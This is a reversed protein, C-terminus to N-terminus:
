RFFIEPSVGFRDRIGLIARKSFDRRGSLMESLNSQGIGIEKALSSITLASAQMLHRIATSPSVDSTDVKLRADREFQDIQNSLVDLYDLVGTDRTGQHALSVRSFVNIAEDHHPLSKIPRLPFQRVLDFYTDTAPYTKTSRMELVAKELSEELM